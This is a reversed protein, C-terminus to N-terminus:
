SKKVEELDDQVRKEITVKGSYPNYIVDLYGSNAILSVTIRETLGSDPFVVTMKGSLRKKSSTVKVAHLSDVKRVEKKNERMFALTKKDLDIDISVENMSFQSSDKAFRIISAIMRADDDHSSISSGFFSPLVVAALISVIFVVIVVELFTFARVDLRNLKKFPM